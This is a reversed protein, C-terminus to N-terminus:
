YGFICKEPHFGVAPNSGLPVEFECTVRHKLKPTNISSINNWTYIVGAKFTMKLYVEVLIKFKGDIKDKSYEDQVSPLLKHGEFVPLLITTNKHGQYFPTLTVSDFRQSDYFARAEIQEYYVGIKKNPNRINLAVALNYFLISNDTLNFPTLSADQVHIKLPNIPRLTFWIILALIGLAILASLIMKCICKPICCLIGGCGM